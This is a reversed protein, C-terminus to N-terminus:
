AENNLLLRRYAASFAKLGFHARAYAINRERMEGTLAPEHLWRELRNVAQEVLADDPLTHDLLFGNVGDKVHFPTDGVDTSLVALGRAMGEMVVMPFGEWASTLLIVKHQRYIRDIEHVDGKQGYFFCYQRLAPPIADEVPGLLSVKVPLRRIAAREAIRAVLEPRKQATGRGSFLVTLVDDPALSSTDEPLPIGNIVLHLRDNFTAPVRFRRYIDLHERIAEHSIMVTADYFPLFPLRIYSFNCKLHLLEVQRIGRRIHPSLKYGFNCQGNFVAPTVSQGNVYAAIKGRWILNLFYLWKNDTYRSIEYIDINPAQFDPLLLTNQSKRTFFVAVKKDPFSQAVAAHVKEAGGVHYFPFFCFLDYEKGLPSRGAMWRGLLVFPLMLWDELRRKWLLWQYM